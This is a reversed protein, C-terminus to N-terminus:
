PRSLQLVLSSAPSLEVEYTGDDAPLDPWEAGTLADVAKFPGPYALNLKLGSSQAEDSFNIIVLFWEEASDVRPPSHRTFAYVGQRNSSNVKAYTGQRLAPHAHRLATLSRYYGLLSDAAVEQEEVSIGDDAVNYRNSPKFWDTMGEGRENAYWDMPERRYEDWYPNGSGKEGLMGIEEGYYIMPTDPLTLLFTAATKARDWDMGVESMVRNNDHNNLFRVM